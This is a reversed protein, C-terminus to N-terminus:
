RWVRMSQSSHCRRRRAPRRPASIERRCGRKWSPSTRALGSGSKRTRSRFFAYGVSVRFDEMNFTGKAVADSPVNVNGWDIVRQVQKENDRDLKFYEVEVRWRKTFHWRADFLGILNSEDLGM